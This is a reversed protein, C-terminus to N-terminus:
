KLYLLYHSVLTDPMGISIASYAVSILFQTSAVQIYTTNSYSRYVGAENNCIRRVSYQSGIGGEYITM